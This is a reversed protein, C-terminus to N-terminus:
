NNKSYIRLYKINNEEFVKYDYPILNLKTDKLAQSAFELIQTKAIIITVNKGNMLGIEANQFSKMKKLAVKKTTDIGNEEKNCAVFLVVSFLFLCLAGLLIKKTKM